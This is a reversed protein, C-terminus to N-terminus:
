AFLAAFNGTPYPRFQTGNAFYIKDYSGDSLKRFQNWTNPKYGFKTTLTWGLTGFNTFSRQVGGPQFLLTEAAFTLGLLSSTYAAVNVKGVCTLVENPIAALRYMTRSINLGRLLISPAEAELLVEGAGSGWHLIRNDISDYDLYPEISESATTVIQTSYQVQVLADGTYACEQGDTSYQGNPHPYAACNIANPNVGGFSKPWARPSILLDEMLAHRDDWLCQLLVSCNIGTNVDANERASGAVESCDIASYIGM